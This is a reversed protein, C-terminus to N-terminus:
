KVPTALAFGKPVVYVGVGKIQGGVARVDHVIGVPIQYSDGAKITRDPQGDIMLVMEGETVTGTEPGPHTHRGANLGAPIEYAGLFVEYNTGPVEIKQLIVRKIGASPTPAPQQAISAGIVALAIVATVLKAFM